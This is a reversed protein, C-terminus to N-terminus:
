ASVILSSCPRKVLTLSAGQDSETTPSQSDPGFTAEVVEEPPFRSTLAEFADQTSRRVRQLEDAYQRELEHRVRALEVRGREAEKRRVREVAATLQREAEEQAERLATQFAREGERDAHVDSPFPGPHSVAKPFVFEQSREPRQQDALRSAGIAAVSAAVIALLVLWWRAAVGGLMGPVPETLGGVLFGLLFVGAGGLVVLSVLHSHGPRPYTRCPHSM